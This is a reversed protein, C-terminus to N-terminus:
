AGSPVRSAIRLVAVQPDSTPVLELCDQLMEPVLHEFVRTRTALENMALLKRDDTAALRMGGRVHVLCADNIDGLM